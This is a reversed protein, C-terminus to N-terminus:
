PSVIREAFTYIKMVPTEIIRVDMDTHIRTGADRVFGILTMGCALATERGRDTVATKTAAVPFGARCLKAVMESTMRGTSVLFHRSCDIRRLLARGIAKDLCNHRGIDEVICLPEAAGNFIGAAHAGETEKYVTAIEFLRNMAQFVADRKLTLDSRVEPLADDTFATRGGGSVIRYSTASASPVAAAPLMVHASTGEIVLSLMDQPAKIFGQGFLYGTVFEREMGPMLSATALHRSNLHIRLECEAVVSPEADRFRGDRLQRSPLTMSTPLFSM